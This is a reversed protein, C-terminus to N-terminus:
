HATAARQRAYLEDAEKCSGEYNVIRAADEKDFISRWPDVNTYAHLKGMDVPDARSPGAGNALEDDITSTDSDADFMVYALQSEGKTAEPRARTVKYISQHGTKLDRADHKQPGAAFVPEGNVYAQLLRGDDTFDASINWRWIYYSCLNIDYLYKEVDSRTPHLKLTAHGHDVFSRRVSERSTGVPLSSEIFHRMDELSASREFRFDSPAQAHAAAGILTGGLVLLITRNRTTM